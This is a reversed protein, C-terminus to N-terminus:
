CSSFSASLLLRIRWGKCHFFLCLLGPPQRSPRSGAVHVFLTAERVTAFEAVVLNLRLHLFTSAHALNPVGGFRLCPPNISSTFSQRLM